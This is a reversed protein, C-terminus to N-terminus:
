VAQPDTVHRAPSVRLDCVEPEILHAIAPATDADLTVRLVGRTQPHQLPDTSPLRRLAAAAPTGGAPHHRRTPDPSEVSGHQGLEPRGAGPRPFQGPRLRSIGAGPQRVRHCRPLRDRTQDEVQVGRDHDAVRLFLGRGWSLASTRSGGATTNRSSVRSANDPMNRSPRAPLLVLASCM